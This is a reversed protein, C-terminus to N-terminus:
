QCVQCAAVYWCVDRYYGPWYYYTAVRAFTKDVGLHGSQPTNHCEALAKERDAEPLVLKRADMDPLLPDVTKNPRHAYLLGNVVKWDPYKKPNKEINSIRGQYWPDDATATAIAALEFTREWARSLADSVKHLAGKRHVFEINYMQLATNWRALRGTPDRLNNLWLSTHHDTIITFKEGQLYGRLREVSWLVALCEMEAVTYNREVKSLTRSM